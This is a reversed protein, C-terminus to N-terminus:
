IDNWIRAMGDLESLVTMNTANIEIEQFYKLDVVIGGDIALAGGVVGSGEGYPIIPFKNENAFKMLESIDSLLKLGSLLIPSVHTLIWGFDM